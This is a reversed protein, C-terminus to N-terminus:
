VEERLIITGQVGILSYKLVADIVYYDSEPTSVTIGRYASGDSNYNFHFVVGEIIDDNDIEYDPGNFVQNDGKKGKTISTIKTSKMKVPFMTGVSEKWDHDTISKGEADVALDLTVKQQKGFIIRVPMEIVDGEFSPPAMQRLIAHNSHKTTTGGSSGRKGSGGTGGMGSTGGTADDWYAFDTPPLLVDALMKGLGLNKKVENGVTIESYDDKIKRRVGKQIRQIIQKKVGDVSWDEWSKHDAMECGRIYEELTMSSGLLTNSSNAVFLAFIYEGTDSKPISDTWDGTTSYDVIMGPKRTYMVIPDNYMSDSSLKDIYYYPSPLNDPPGMKFDDATVKIYNVVGAQANGRNFISRIEIGKSVIKKDNFFGDKDPRSNYLCQVLQFVPEMNSYKIRRDNVSVRLYQGDYNKNEIRPSYWRQVAITLYDEISTRCWYPIEYDEETGLPITEKLLGERDIFPIIIITGTEDNEFPAIGFGDLIKYIEKENRVPVTTDGEPEEEDIEGWWAIGRHVGKDPKKLITDKKREDEVLAAALRSEFEGNENIIRSYYVVLGVGIRFYVTKGLGWSGGAGHQDQPKSIEYVLKLFNGYKGDDGIDNQRIPGSLGVTNTDRIAIYNCTEGNKNLLNDSIGEFFSSIDTTNVAGTMMDVSVYEAKKDGADLCNQLSERVLLDLRPTDKNQLLRLLSSGSESMKDKPSAIEIHM